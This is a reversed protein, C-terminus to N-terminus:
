ANSSDTLKQRFHNKKVQVNRVEKDYVIRYVCADRPLIAHEILETM